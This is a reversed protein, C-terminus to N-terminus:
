AKEEQDPPAQPDHAQAEPSAANTEEGLLLEEPIAYNHERAYQLTQNRGLTKELERFTEISIILTPRENAEFSKSRTGNSENLHIENKETGDSCLDDTGDSCVEETHDSRYRGL